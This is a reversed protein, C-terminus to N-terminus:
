SVRCRVLILRSNIRPPFFYKGSHLVDLVTLSERRDGGAVPDPGLGMFVQQSTGSAQGLPESQM